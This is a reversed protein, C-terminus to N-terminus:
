VKPEGCVQTSQPLASTGFSSIIGVSLRFRGGTPLTVGLPQTLRPTKWEGALGDPRGLGCYVLASRAKQSPPNLKSKERSRGGTRYIRNSHKWVIPPVLLKKSKLSSDM